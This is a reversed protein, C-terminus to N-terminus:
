GRPAHNADCRRARARAPAARDDGSRVHLPGGGRAGNPRGSVAAAPISEGDCRGCRAAPIAGIGMTRELERCADILSVRMLRPGIAPLFWVVLLTGLFYTLAYATSVNNALREAVGPDAGLTAAARTATGLATSNTLAGALLGAATGGDLALALALTWTLGLAVVCLFVTLGIQPLASSRLGHFFDPGTRVGIAFLFLLFFASQMAAPVAIGAQGVLLAALLTGLVPGLQFGRFRLSGLGYGLAISVFLALEVNERLSEALWDM